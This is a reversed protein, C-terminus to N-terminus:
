ARTRSLISVYLKFAFLCFCHQIVSIKLSGTFSCDNLRHPEPFHVSLDIACFLLGVFLGVRGREVPKQCLHVLREVSSAAAKVFPAQAVPRGCVRVAGLGGETEAECGVRFSCFTKM